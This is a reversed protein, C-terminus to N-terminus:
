QRLAAVAKAVEEAQAAYTKIWESQARTPRGSNNGVQITLWNVRGPLNVHGPDRADGRLVLVIPRLQRRLSEADATRGGKELEAARRQLEGLDASARQLACETQVIVTAEQHWAAMDADSVALRPDKRVTFTQRAETGAAALTVTYEGPIARLWTGGGRGGGRGGRGRGAAQTREDACPSREALNWVARNVGAKGPGSITQVLRGARDRISLQVSEADAPLYYNIIAGYPQNRAVWVRNGLVSTDSAPTYRVPPM